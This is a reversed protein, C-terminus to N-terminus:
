GVLWLKLWSLAERVHNKIWYPAETESGIGTAVIGEQRCLELARAVHYDSTVVLAQSLGQADMIAKAGRLNERTNFSDVEAFVDQAAVGRDILWQRMVEGEPAPEDSGQAGCTIIKQPNAQYVELAMELRYNLQKSPTGDPKVQAGLVIIADSPLVEPLHHERWTVFGVMGIGLCIGLILLVLLIRLIRRGMTKKQVKSDM